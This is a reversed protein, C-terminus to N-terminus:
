DVKVIWGEPAEVDGFQIGTLEDYTSLYDVVVGNLKKQTVSKYTSEHRYDRCIHVGTVMPCDDAQFKYMITINLFMLNQAKTCTLMLRAVVSAGGDNMTCRMKCRNLSLPSLREYERHLFHKVNWDGRVYDVDLHSYAIIDPDMMLSLGDISGEKLYETILNETLRILDEQGMEM